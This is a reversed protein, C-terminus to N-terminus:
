TFGKRIGFPRWDWDKHSQILTTHIAKLLKRRPFNKCEIKSDRFLRQNGNRTPDNNLAELISGISVGKHLDIQPIGNM